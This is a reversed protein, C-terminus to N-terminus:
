ELLSAVASVKAVALSHNAHIDEGSITNMAHIDRKLTELLGENIYFSPTRPYTTERWQWPYGGHVLSICFSLLLLNRIDLTMNSKISRQTLNPFSQSIGWKNLVKLIYKTSAFQTIM